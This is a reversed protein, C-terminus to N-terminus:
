NTNSNHHDIIKTERRNLIARVEDWRFPRYEGFISFASDVGVDMSKGWPRDELTNHSHGYLHFANKHHKDWVRHAYHSLFIRHGDISIQSVQNVSTFLGRIGDKNRDIHHDHNGLILHITRVTLRDRFKKISDFGGFSWDGLHYLVDDVSVRDNIGNVLALNHAEMTDFDRTNQHSGGEELEQWESCGRVINKHNYHTDSTFWIM